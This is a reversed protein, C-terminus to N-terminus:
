KKKLTIDIETFPAEQEIMIKNQHDLHLIPVFTAIREERGEGALVSFKMKETGHKKFFDRIRTYVDQIKKRIDILPKQFVAMGLAREARKFFLERKIRRHETKLATDLAGMLENLTIKRFRPLPTRPYIEPIEEEALEFISALGALEDKPKEKKEFLIEDIDKIRSHLIESKIRLLITAALLVKSSVFFSAEQLERIRQIYKQSLLGLDINWPDLQESNILDLLIAQWSLERSVLMDYLQEQGMPGNKMNKGIEKVEKEM